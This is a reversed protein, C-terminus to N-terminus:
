LATPCRRGDRLLLGVRDWPARQHKSRADPIPSDFTAFRKANLEGPVELPPDFRLEVGHAATSGINKVNVLVLMGRFEFDVIV